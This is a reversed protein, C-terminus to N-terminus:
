QNNENDEKKGELEKKYQNYDKDRGENVAQEEDPGNTAQSQLTIILNIIDNIGNGDQLADIVAQITEANDVSHVFVEHGLTEAWQDSTREMNGNLAVGIEFAGTQELKNIDSKNVPNRTSLLQEGRSGDANKHFAYSRGIAPLNNQGFFRLTSNAYNNGTGTGSFGYEKITGDRMIIKVTEGKKLFQNVFAQGSRTQMFQYFAAMREKGMYHIIVEDGDPDVFIIPSNLAYIYPSVSNYKETKNDIM